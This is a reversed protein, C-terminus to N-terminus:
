EVTKFLCAMTRSFLGTTLLLIPPSPPIVLFHFCLSNKPNHLLKSDEHHHHSCLHICLNLHRSSHVLLFVDMKNCSPLLIYLLFFNLFVLSMTIVFTLITIIEPFTHFYSLMSGLPTGLIRIFSQKKVLPSPINFIESKYDDKSIWPPSTRPVRGHELVLIQPHELGQCIIAPTPCHVRQKRPFPTCITYLLLKPHYKSVVLLISSVYVKHRLCKM